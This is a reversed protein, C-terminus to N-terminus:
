GKLVELKANIFDRHTLHLSRAIHRIEEHEDHGIDGDAVAVAFLAALLHRREEPMTRSALQRMMRLTDYTVDVASVAVEVVFDAQADGLPWHAQIAEVMAKREEDTVGQDAHAVKAMLGGALGLTRLEEHSLDLDVDEHPLRQRLSYYVKNKLFDEFFHERDPTGAVAENRQQISRGVLRELGGLLGVSATEVATEIEALVIEEDETIAGDAEAVSRLAEGVLKKDRSSRLADQLEAVLRAREAADIPTEMYMELRAWERGSLQIGAGRGIQPLQFLLDKLSNVEENTIEGDAWAVAIIVKALKMILDKQAM